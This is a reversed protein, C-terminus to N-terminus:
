GTLVLLDATSISGGESYPSRERIWSTTRLSPGFALTKLKLKGSDSSKHLGQLFIIPDPRFSTFVPLFFLLLNNYNEMYPCLLPSFIFAGTLSVCGQAM